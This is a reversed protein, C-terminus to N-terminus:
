REPCDYRGEHLFFIVVGILLVTLTGIASIIAINGTNNLLGHADSGIIRKVNTTTFYVTPAFVTKGIENVTAAIGSLTTTKTTATQTPIMPVSSSATQIAFRASFSSMSTKRTNPHPVVTSTSVSRSVFTMTVDTPSTNTHSCLM